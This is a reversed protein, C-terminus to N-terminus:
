KFGGARMFQWAARLRRSGSQWGAALQLTYRDVALAGLGGGAACLVPALAGLSQLMGTGPLQLVSLDYALWVGITIGLALRFREILGRGRRRAAHWGYGAVLINIFLASLLDRPDSSAAPM